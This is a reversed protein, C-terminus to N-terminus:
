HSALLRFQEKLAKRFKSNFAKASSLFDMHFALQGELSRDAGLGSQLMYLERQLGLEFFYNRKMKKIVKNQIKDFKAIKHDSYDGKQVIEMASDIYKGIENGLSINKSIYQRMEKQKHDDSKPSKIVKSFVDKINEEKTRDAHKNLFEELACHTFGDIYMGGETCNFLNIGSDKLEAAFNKYSQAFFYFTNNTEVDDGYFGKVKFREGMAQLRIESMDLDADETYLKGSSALALDQGVLAINKFGFEVMLDFASHSVSGGIRYYDHVDIPLHEGIQQGPSMWLIKECPIDFMYPAGMSSTIFYPVESFDNNEIWEDWQSVEKGDREFYLNKLSFPDTHIIIDPIIGAKKLPRFAHLVAIILVKGKAKKLMDINKSLSPGPCVIIASHGAFKKHFESTQQEKVINNLNDLIKVADGRNITNFRIWAAERGRELTFRIENMINLDTKVDGCDLALYRRPPQANFLMISEKLEEYNEVRHVIVDSPYSNNQALETMDISGNLLFIRRQGREVLTDILKRNDLNIITVLDYHFEWSLPIQNDLYANLLPDSLFFVPSFEIENMTEQVKSITKLNQTLNSAFEQIAAKNTKKTEGEDELHKSILVNNDNIYAMLPRMRDTAFSFEKLDASKLFQLSANSLKNLTAYIRTTRDLNLEADYITARKKSTQDFYVTEM